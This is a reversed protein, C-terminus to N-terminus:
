MRCSKRKHAHTTLIVGHRPGGAFMHCLMRHLERACKEDSSADCYVHDGLHMQAVTGWASPNRMGPEMCVPIMPKRLVTAYLFERHCNDNVSSLRASSVELKECYQATLCVLFCDCGKIGAGLQSILHGSTIENEDLWVKWGLERLRRALTRVRAHNDRDLTDKGWAHSLFLTPM